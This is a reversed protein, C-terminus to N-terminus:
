CGKAKACAAAFDKQIAPDTSTCVTTPDLGRKDAADRIEQQTNVCDTSGAGGSGSTSSGGSCAACLIAAGLRLIQSIM